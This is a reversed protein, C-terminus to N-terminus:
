IWTISGHYGVFPEKTPSITNKEELKQNDFGLKRFINSPSGAMWYIIRSMSNRIIMTMYVDVLLGRYIWIFIRLFFWWVDMYVSIFGNFLWGYWGYLSMYIWEWFFVWRFGYLEMFFCYLSMSIWLFFGSSRWKQSFDRPDEVEMSRKESACSVAAASPVKASTSDQLVVSAAIFNPFSAIPFVFM